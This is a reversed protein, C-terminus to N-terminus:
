SVRSSAALSPWRGHLIQLGYFFDGGGGPFPNKLGHRLGHGLACCFWLLCVIYAAKCVNTKIRNCGGVM